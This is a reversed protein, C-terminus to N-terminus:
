FSDGLDGKPLVDEGSQYVLWELTDCLFDGNPLNVLRQFSPHTISMSYLHVVIVAQVISLDEPFFILFKLSKKNQHFVRVTSPRSSSKGVSGLWPPFRPSLVWLIMLASM